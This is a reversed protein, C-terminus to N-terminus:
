SIITGAVQPDKAPRGYRLHDKRSCSPLNIPSRTRKLSLVPQLSGSDTVKVVCSYARLRASAAEAILTSAATGSRESLKRPRICTTQRQTTPSSSGTLLCSARPSATSPFVAHLLRAAPIAGNRFGIAEDLGCGIDPPHCGTRDLLRDPSPPM